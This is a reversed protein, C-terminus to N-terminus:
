LKRLATVYLLGGRRVTLTLEYRQAVMLNAQLSDAIFVPLRVDSADGLARVSLLRGVGERWELQADIEASLVYRNGQLNDPSELYANVPFVEGRQRTCGSAFVTLLALATVTLRRSAPRPRTM